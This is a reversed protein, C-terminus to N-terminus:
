RARPLQHGNLTRKVSAWWLLERARKKQTLVNKQMQKFTEMGASEMFVDHAGPGLFYVKEIIESLQKVWVYEEMGEPKQKPNFYFPVVDNRGVTFVLIDEKEFDPHKLLDRYNRKYDFILFPKKHKCLEKLIRISLTTKGSGTKGFIGCHRLWENERVGFFGFSKDPYIVEGILYEGILHNKESPPLIIQEAPFSSVNKSILLDIMSEIEKQKRFDKEFIYQIRLGERQIPSLIPKLLKLKEDIREM